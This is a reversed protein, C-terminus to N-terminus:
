ENSPIMRLLAAPSSARLFRVTSSGDEHPFFWQFPYQPIAASFELALIEDQWRTELLLGATGDLFQWLAWRDGAWKGSVTMVVHGSNESALFPM